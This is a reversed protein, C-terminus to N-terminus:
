TSTKKEILACNWKSILYFFLLSLFEVWRGLEIGCDFNHFHTSWLLQRRHTKLIPWLEVNLFNIWRTKDIHLVCESEKKQGTQQNERMWVCECSCNSQKQDKVCSWFSCSIFCFSVSVVINLILYLFLLSPSGSASVALDWEVGHKYSGFSRWGTNAESITHSIVFFLAWALAYFSRIGIDFSYDFLMAEYRM